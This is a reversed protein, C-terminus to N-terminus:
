DTTEDLLKALLSVFALFELAREPTDDIIRHARPNRLGTVAGMFLYMFGKQENIDSEDMLSNFKLAGSKPNFAQEMLTVGDLELGSRLRVLGNLAKVSKEVAEAYHGDRYLKGVARNIEPHLEFAEYAKLSRGAETAGADQLDEGFRRKLSNLQELARGIGQRLGERVEGIPTPYMVNHGATDLNRIHRLRQYQTTDSGFISVLMEDLSTGLASVRPDSRDSISDVDLAELDNIRRDIKPLAAQIQQISLVADQYSDQQVRKRAM